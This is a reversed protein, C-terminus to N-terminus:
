RASGPEPAESLNLLTRVLPVTPTDPQEVPSSVTAVDGRVPTPAPKRGPKEKDVKKSGPAPNGDKDLREGEGQEWWITSEIAYRSIVDMLKHVQEAEESSFRRDEGEFGMIAADMHIKYTAGHGPEYSGTKKDGSSIVWTLEETVPNWTVSELRRLKTKGKQTKPEDPKVGEGQPNGGGQAFGPISAMTLVLLGAAPWFIKRPRRAV